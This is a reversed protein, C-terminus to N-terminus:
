FFLVILWIFPFNWEQDSLIKRAALNSLDLGRNVLSSSLFIVNEKYSPFYIFLIWITEIRKAGRYVIHFKHVPKKELSM